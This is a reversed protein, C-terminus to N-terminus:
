HWMYLCWQVPDNDTLIIAQWRNLALSNDLCIYSNDLKWKLFDWKFVDDAIKGRNQGPHSSNTCFGTLLALGLSKIYVPYWCAHLMNCPLWQQTAWTTLDRCSMQLKPVPLHSRYTGLKFHTATVQLNTMLTTTLTIILLTVHEM